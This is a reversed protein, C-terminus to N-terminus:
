SAGTRYVTELLSVRKIVSTEADRSVGLIEYYDKGGYVGKSNYLLIVAVVVLFIAYGYWSRHM